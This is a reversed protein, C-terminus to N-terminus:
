SRKFWVSHTHPTLEATVCKVRINGKLRRVILWLTPQTGTRGRAPCDSVISPTILDSGSLEQMLLPRHHLAIQAHQRAITAQGDALGSDHKLLGFQGLVPPFIM